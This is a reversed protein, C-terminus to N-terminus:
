RCENCLLKKDWPVVRLHRFPLVHAVVTGGSGTFDFDGVVKPNLLTYLPALLDRGQNGHTM